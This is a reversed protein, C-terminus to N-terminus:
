PRVSVCSVEIKDDIKNDKSFFKNVTVVAQVFDALEHKRACDMVSTGKQKKCLAGVDPHM